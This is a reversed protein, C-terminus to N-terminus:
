SGKRSAQEPAVVRPCSVPHKPRRLIADGARVRCCRRIASTSVLGFLTCGSEPEQARSIAGDVTSLDLKAVVYRTGPPALRFIRGRDIDGMAHGGVGPDYWDTVFLSGDPAVCVDSPVSGTTRPHRGSIDVIEAKYGAGTEKVPYARVISPGADCHIVQNRFVEPLLTARTSASAPRRVGAPKCCTRCSARITSIGTGCPYRPRWTRARTGALGRRHNRRRYGYNGFEMVYNIRVGRNGDDDNDSQWLTGFSDVAVEYNNRFNHRSCRSTAATSIAASSWAKATRSAATTSPM